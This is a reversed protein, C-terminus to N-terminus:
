KSFYQGSLSKDIVEAPNELFKEWTLGEIIGEYKYRCDFCAFVEEDALWCFVGVNRENNVKALFDVYNKKSWRSKFIRVEDLACLEISDTYDSNKVEITKRKMELYKILEEPVKRVKLIEICHDEDHYRPNEYGRILDRVQGDCHACAEDYATYGERDLMTVDVGKHLLYEIVDINRKKTAEHLPTSNGYSDHDNGSYNIDAGSEVLLEVAKLNGRMAAYRLIEGLQNCYTNEDLCVKLTHLDNKDISEQIKIDM